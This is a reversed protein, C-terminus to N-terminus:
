NWPTTEATEMDSDRSTKVLTVQMFEKMEPRWSKGSIGVGMASKWEKKWGEEKKREGCWIGMGTGKRVEEGMCNGGDVWRWHISIEEEFYSDLIRRQTRRNSLKKPDISQLM